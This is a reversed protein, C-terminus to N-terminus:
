YPYWLWSNLDRLFHKQQLNSKRNGKPHSLFISKKNKNNMRTQTMRLVRPQPVRVFHRMVSTYTSKLAKPRKLWFINVSITVHILRLMWDTWQYTIVMDKGNCHRWLPYPLTEFWWCISQKSFRKNLRLDFLVNFSRTVPRQAPFEGPVPSTGKCIAQLASFTEMQHRWWTWRRNLQQLYPMPSYNFVM